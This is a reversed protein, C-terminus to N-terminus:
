EGEHKGSGRAPAQNVLLLVDPAQADGPFSTLISCNEPRRFGEGPALILKVANGAAAATFVVSTPEDALNIAGWLEGCRRNERSVVLDCRAGAPLGFQKFAMFDNLQTAFHDFGPLQGTGLDATQELLAWFSSRMHDPIRFLCISDDPSAAETLLSIDEGHVALWSGASCVQLRASWDGGLHFRPAVTFRFGPAHYVEDSM